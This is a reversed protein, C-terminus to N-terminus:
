RKSMSVEAEDRVSGSPPGGWRATSMGEEVMVSFRGDLDGLFARGEWGVSAGGIGVGADAVTVVPGDSGTISGSSALRGAGIGIGELPVEVRSGREAIDIISDM